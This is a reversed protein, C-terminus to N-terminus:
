DEQELDWVNLLLNLNKGTGRYFELASKLMEVYREIKWLLDTDFSRFFELREIAKKVRQDVEKAVADKDVTLAHPSKLRWRPLASILIVPYLLNTFKRRDIADDLADLAHHALKGVENEELLVPMEDTRSMLFAACAVEKRAVWQKSKFLHSICRRIDDASSLVRGLGQFVLTACGHHYWYPHHGSGAELASLLELVLRSDCRQFSWTLFRVPDNNRHQIVGKARDMSNELARQQLDELLREQGADIGLPLEGDSSICYSHGDIRNGMKNALEKWNIDDDRAMGVMLDWLGKRKYQGDWLEKTAQLKLRDPFNPPSPELAVRLRQWLQHQPSNSEDQSM